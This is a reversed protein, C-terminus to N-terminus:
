STATVSQEPDVPSATPSTDTAPTAAPPTASTGSVSDAAPAFAHVTVQAPSKGPRPKIGPYAMSGSVYRLEWFLLGLHTVILVIGFAVPDLWGQDKVLLVVVLILGLRLLYGFLAAGAMVAISIRGGVQLMWASLLFNVVVLGLAVAASIAGNTGWIAASGFLAIPAWIVARRLLDVAVEMAPSPGELRTMLGNSTNDSM